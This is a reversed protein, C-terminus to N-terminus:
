SLKRRGRKQTLHIIGSSDLYSLTLVATAGPALANGGGLPVDIFPSGVSV